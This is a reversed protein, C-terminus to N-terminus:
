IMVRIDVPRKITIRIRFLGQYSNPNSAVTPIGNEYTNITFALDKDEILCLKISIYKELWKQSLLYAALIM